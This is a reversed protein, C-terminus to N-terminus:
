SLKCRALGINRWSTVFLWDAEGYTVEVSTTAGNILGTVDMLITEIIPKSTQGSGGGFFTDGLQAIPVRVVKSHVKHGPTKNLATKVVPVGTIM